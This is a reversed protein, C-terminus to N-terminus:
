LCTLFNRASRDCSIEMVLPWVRVKGPPPIRQCPARTGSLSLSSWSILFSVLRSDLRSFFFFRRLVSRDEESWTIEMLDFCTIAWLFVAWFKSTHQHFEFKSFATFQEIKQHVGTTKWFMNSSSIELLKNFTRYHMCIYEGICNEQLIIRTKESEDLKNRNCTDGM